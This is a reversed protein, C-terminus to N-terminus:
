SLGEELGFVGASPPWAEGPRGRTQPKHPFALGQLADRACSSYSGAYVLRMGNSGVAGRERM